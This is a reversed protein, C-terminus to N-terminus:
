PASGEGFASLPTGLLEVAWYGVPKGDSCVQICRWTTGAEDTVLYSRANRWKWDTPTVTHPQIFPGRAYGAVRPTYHAPLASAPLRDPTAPTPTKEATERRDM